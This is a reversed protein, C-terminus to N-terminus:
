TTHIDAERPYCILRADNMEEAPVPSDLPLKVQPNFCELKREREDATAWTVTIDSSLIAYKSLFHVPYASCWFERQEGGNIRGDSRPHWHFFTSPTERNWEVIVRFAPDQGYNKLVLRTGEKDSTFSELKLDPDNAKRSALHQVENDLVEKDRRTEERKQRAEENQTQKRHIWLAVLATILSSLLAAILTSLWPSM